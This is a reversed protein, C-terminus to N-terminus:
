PEPKATPTWKPGRDIHVTFESDVVDPVKGLIRNIADRLISPEEAAIACGLYKRLLADRWTLKESGPVTCRESLIREWLKRADVTRASM